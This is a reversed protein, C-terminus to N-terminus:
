GVLGLVEQACRQAAIECYREEIEIGIARRGLSKAAVLTSGSGMFPDLITGTSFRLLDILVDVPKAHPHVGQAYARHTGSRGRIISSQTAVGEWEGIVYIPEWDRRWPGTAGFFGADAPKQWVLVARAGAPPPAFISGFVLAPGDFAALVADRASTDGDNQIGEHAKTRTSPHRGRALYAPQDWDIGYPPDTVIVDAEPMWERCDGHYITVHDDQYYPTV